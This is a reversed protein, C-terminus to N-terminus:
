RAITAVTGSKTLKRPVCLVYTSYQCTETTCCYSADCSRTTTCSSTGGTNTQQPVLHSVDVPAAVEESGEETDVDDANTACGGLVAILSLFSLALLTKGLLNM